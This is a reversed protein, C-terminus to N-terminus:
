TSSKEMARSKYKDTVAVLLLRHKEGLEQRNNIFIYRFENLENM